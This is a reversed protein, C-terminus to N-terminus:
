VFHLPTLNLTIGEHLFNGGKGFIHDVFRASVHLYQDVAGEGIHFTGARSTSSGAEFLGVCSILASLLFAVKTDGLM